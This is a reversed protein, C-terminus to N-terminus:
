ENMWRREKGKEEGKEEKVIWVWFYRKGDGFCVRKRQLKNSLLFIFYFQFVNGAWLQLSAVGWSNFDLKIGVLDESLSPSKAGRQNRGLVWM